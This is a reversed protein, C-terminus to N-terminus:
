LRKVLPSRDRCTDVAHWRLRFIVRLSWCLLCVTAFNSFSRSCRLATSRLLIRGSTTCRLALASRALWGRSALMVLTRFRQTWVPLPLPTTLSNPSFRIFNLFSASKPISAPTVREEHHYVQLTARTMRDRKTLFM